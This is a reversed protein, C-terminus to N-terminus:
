GSSTLRLARATIDRRANSRDITLCRRGAVVQQGGVWVDRVAAPSGAWVVRSFLEDDGLIPDFGPEDLDLAVMDARSGPTLRGLDARGVAAAAQSTVMELLTRATMAAADMRAIRAYRSATRMDEFLDLRDHSAPGDTAIGVNIGAARIETIPAIGSAHRGNSSPCHAVSVGRAAMLEIDAPTVWVCHAGVTRSTLLGLQDLYAPVTMGTAQLVGDGEHPQEAIHTHVLMPDDAILAAVLELADRSLAYASHPGVGVEILAHDRWRTRMARINALQDAVTGFAALDPSEILPAAVICRLGAAAAGEAVADGFFYMESSTTVGNLLLESAGLQMAERVDDVVLRAERPWMIELLWRDTPLGEGTGRLLLMPTHAHINIMGPMTLGAVRVVEAATEPAQAHPGSWTVFGEAIDVVGPSHVSGASDMTILHEAVYRM